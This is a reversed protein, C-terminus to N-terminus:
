KMRGRALEAEQTLFAGKAGAAYEKLAEAAPPGIMELVQVARYARLYDGELKRRSRATTELLTAIAEAAEPSADKAAARRLEPEVADAVAALKKAAAQREAFAPASLAKVWVTVDAAAPPPVPKLKERVFKVAAAPHDALRYAARLATTGDPSILDNWCAAADLAAPPTPDIAARLDHIFIRSDRQGVAVRRGDLSFALSSSHNGNPVSACLGWTAVDYVLYHQSEGVYADVVCFRENDSFIIRPASPTPEPLIIRGIRGLTTPDFVTLERHEMTRASTALVVRGSPSIAGFDPRAGEVLKLKSVVERKRYDWARVEDFEDGEYYAVGIGGRLSVAAEDRILAKEGKGFERPMDAAPSRPKADLDLAIIQGGHSLALLSKEDNSFTVEKVNEPTAPDNRRRGPFLDNSDALPVRNAKRDWIRIGYELHGIGVRQGDRTVALASVGRRVDRSTPPPAPLTATERGSTVDWVRTTGDEGGSVVASGDPLWTVARVVGAHGSVPFWERGTEIDWVRLTGSHDSTVLTKGTDSPVIHEFRETGATFTRIVEGSKIDCLSCQGVSGLSSGVLVRTDNSLFVSSGGGVPHKWERIKKGTTVDWLVTAEWTRTLLTQSNRSFTNVSAVEEGKGFERVLKGTKGDILQFAGTTVKDGVRAGGYEVSSAAIWQGDFSVALEGGNPAPVSYRERLDGNACDWVTLTNERLTKKNPNVTERIAVLTKGDPTIALRGEVYNAIIVGLPKPETSKVMSRAAKTQTDYRVLGHYNAWVYLWRSDACVSESRFQKDELARIHEVRSREGTQLNWVCLEGSYNLTWATRGDEQVKLLLPADVLKRDLSGLKAVVPAVPPDAAGAAAAAAFLVVVVLSRM